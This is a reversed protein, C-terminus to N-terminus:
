PRMMVPLYTPRVSSRVVLIGEIYAPDAVASIMVTADLPPDETEITFTASISGSPITLSVPVSAWEPESSFLEVVVGGAPAPVTLSLVGTASVGGDVEGPAITLAAIDCADGIGDGDGDEQGANAIASCNDEGNSLGDGDFDILSATELAEEDTREYDTPVSSHVGDAFDATIRFDYLINSWDDYGPMVAAQNAPMECAELGASSTADPDNIGATVPTTILLDENWDIDGVTATFTMECQDTAPLYFSYVTWPWRIALDAPPANNDIGLSENLGDEDLTLLEWRSYDLRRRPLFEGDQFAYNMVSLYNPKYNINDPGGHRLSLTHGFEHMLTGSEVIPLGGAAAISAASWGGLTVMFDNGPLEAIGSSGIRHAHNHGFIGYRFALRRAAIINACNGSTRDARRGFRGDTPGIGCPEVPNGLKLDDFDDAAGPGVTRFLIPEIEPLAEDVMLHLNVGTEGDPNTVTGADAFAREVRLITSRLPRHTHHLPVRMYDIEVFIDKHDPDANFPPLHLPLDIVGDGNVDIGETEWNDCLADGDNDPNGNDDTDRCFSFSISHVVVESESINFESGSAAHAQSYVELYVSSGVSEATTVFTIVESHTESGMEGTAHGRFDHWGADFPDVKVGSNASGTGTVWEADLTYTFDVKVEIPLDKVDDWDYAGPLFDFTIGVEAVAEAAQGSGATFEAWLATSAGNGAATAESVTPNPLGGFMTDDIIEAHHYDMATFTIDEGWVVENVAPIVPVPVDQSGSAAMALPALLVALLLLSFARSKM